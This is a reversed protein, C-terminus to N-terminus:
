IQGVLFLLTHERWPQCLHRGAAFSFLSVFKTALHQTTASSDFIDPHISPKAQNSRISLIESDSVRASFSDKCCHSLTPREIDAQVSHSFYMPLHGARNSQCGKFKDQGGNNAPNGARRRQRSGLVFEEITQRERSSKHCTRQSTTTNPTRWVKSCSTEFRLSPRQRRKPTRKREEAEWSETASSLRYLTL